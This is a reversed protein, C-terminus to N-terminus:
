HNVYYPLSPMRFMKEQSLSNMDLPANISSELLAIRWEGDSLILEHKPLFGSVRVAIHAVKDLGPILGGVSAAYKLQNYLSLFLNLKAAKDTLM